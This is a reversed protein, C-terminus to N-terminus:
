IINSVWFSLRLCTRAQEIEDVPIRCPAFDVGSILKGERKGTKLRTLKMEGEDGEVSEWHSHGTDGYNVFTGPVYGIERLERQIDSHKKGTGRQKGDSTGRGRENSSKFSERSTMPPSIKARLSAYM